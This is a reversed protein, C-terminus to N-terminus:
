SNSRISGKRSTTQTDSRHELANAKLEKLQNSLDFPRHVSARENVAEPSLGVNQTIHTLKGLADSNKDDDNKTRNLDNTEVTKRVLNNAMQDMSVLNAGIGGDDQTPMVM